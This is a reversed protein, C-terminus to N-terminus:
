VEIMEIFAEIRPRMQDIGGPTYDGELVLTPVDLDDRFRKALHPIESLRADCCKMTLFIAGEIRCDTLTRRIFDWRMEPISDTCTSRPCAIGLSRRAIAELPPVQTDLPQWFYRSGMCADDSVVQGGSEEIIRLVEANMPDMPGGSVYLRVGSVTTESTWTEVDDLYDRLLRAHEDKPMVQSAFTFQWAQYASVVSPDSMRMQYLRRLQAKDDNYVAIADSLDTDTITRWLSRELEQQFVKLAETYFRVVERGTTKQPYPIHYVYPNLTKQQIVDPRSPAPVHEAWLFDMASMMDCTTPVVVGDLYRYDGRIGADLCSRAFPCSNYPVWQDAYHLPENTGVIRIPLIGAAQLIEEPAACCFYGYVKGGTREKWQRAMSHRADTQAEKLIDKM